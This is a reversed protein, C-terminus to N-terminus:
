PPNNVLPFSARLETGEGPVSQFSIRGGLLEVREQMGLLGLAAGGRARRQVAELDFGIGDDRVCV